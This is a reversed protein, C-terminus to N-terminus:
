SGPLCCASSIEVVLVVGRPTQLGHVAVRGSLARQLGCLWGGACGTACRSCSCARSSTHSHVTGTRLFPAWVGRLSRRDMRTRRLYSHAAPIITHVTAWRSRGFPCCPRGGKAYGASYGKRVGSLVMDLGRHAANTARANRNCLATPRRGVTPNRDLELVVPGPKQVPGCRGRWGGAHRRGRWGGAHRRRCAWPAEGVRMEANPLATQDPGVHCRPHGLGSLAGRPNSRALRYVNSPPRALSAFTRCVASPQAVIM